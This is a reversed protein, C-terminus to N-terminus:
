SSPADLAPLNKEKLVEKLLTLAYIGNLAPATRLFGIRHLAEASQKLSACNPDWTFEVRTMAKQIVDDKLAKGTERKLQANLITAAAIKNSNIQETVEVLAAVLKRIMQQNDALFNRSVVLHTTVFKEGPWLSKEELLLQGGGELELRSLWPEVTWAGDIQHKKFLTLQDPNSLPVLSVNGGRERLRYGKEAFWVRAAVDQSNGLQPTAITKDAFDKESRIGSDKRVVLGSGGGASGAVIVFKEGRSKIYGNITPSPGVFTADVANAFLSEIATPGANFATWEIRVGIRAEFEGTARAYLAQAHTINPFYGLRLVNAERQAGLGPEVLFPVLLLAFRAPKPALWSLRESM